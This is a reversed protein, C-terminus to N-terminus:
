FCCYLFILLLICSSDYMTFNKNKTKASNVTFIEVKMPEERTLLLVGGHGSKESANLFSHYGNQLENPVEVCKTEQLAVIDPNEEIM